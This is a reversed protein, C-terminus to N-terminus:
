LPTLAKALRSTVDQCLEQLLVARSAQAGDSAGLLQEYEQRLARWVELVVDFQPPSKGLCHEVFGLVCDTHGDDLCHAMLFKGKSVLQLREPRPTTLPVEFGDPFRM